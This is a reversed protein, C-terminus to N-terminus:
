IQDNLIDNIIIKGVEFINKMATQFIDASEESNESALSDDSSPGWLIEPTIGSPFVDLNVSVRLDILNDLYGFRDVTRAVAIDEMETVAYPDTCGYTEIMAEANRHGARGKWFNDGTVSTGRMVQPMRNAWEKDPYEKRLFNETKETTELRINKVREYVSDTLDSNLVIVANNDYDKNHFWTPKSDDEMDRPDAHHGLDYDVNASIVFVDGFIGYGESSGACGTSLIKAKSFDFREDSLIASTNIAASVKGMGTLCLAVGDKYYLTLDDPSGKITYTECGDLYEEYYYQAEGPFDEAMENVEFKPLILVKVSIPQQSNEGPACSTLTFASIILILLIAKLRNILTKNIIAM